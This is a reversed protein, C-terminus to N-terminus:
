NDQERILYSYSRESNIFEINKGNRIIKVIAQDGRYLTRTTGDEHFTMGGPLAKNIATAPFYTLQIDLLVYEPQINTVPILPSFDYEIGKVGYKITMIRAMEALLTVQMEEFTLKVVGTLVRKSGGYNGTIEQVCTLEGGYASPPLLSM